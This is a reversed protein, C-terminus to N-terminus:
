FLGLERLSSHGDAGVIVHDHLTIRLPRAAEALERTLRIDQRSPTPDGSPHNHAIILATAGLDMARRLIERVYVASEDVSGSSAESGILRNRANLYLIRVQEVTMFAMDTRLYDLLTQSSGLVPGERLRTEALRIAAAEVIKLAAISPDSLGTRTRITEADAALLAGFSGFRDIMRRALKKTDQRRVSLALLYEVIEHDHLAGPGGEFLRQRLRDRHGAASEGGEAMLM